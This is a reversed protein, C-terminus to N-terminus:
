LSCKKDSNRLKQIQPKMLMNSVQNFKLFSCIFIAFVIQYVELRFIFM